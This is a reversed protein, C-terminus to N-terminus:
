PVVALSSSSAAVAGTFKETVHSFPFQGPPTKDRKKLVFSERIKRVKMRVFGIIATLNLFFM